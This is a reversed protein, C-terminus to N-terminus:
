KALACFELLDKVVVKVELWITAGTSAGDASVTFSAVTPTIAYM